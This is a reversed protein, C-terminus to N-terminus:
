GGEGESSARLECLAEGIEVLRQCLSRFRHFDGVQRLLRRREAESHIRFGATRGGRKCTFLPYPGRVAKVEEGRRPRSFYQEVVSGRRMEEIGALAQLIRRREKLLVGERKM